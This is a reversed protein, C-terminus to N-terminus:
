NMHLMRFLSSSMRLKQNLRNLLRNFSQSLQRVEIPNKSVPLQKVEKEDTALMMDTLPQSITNAAKRILILAIFLSYDHCRCHSIDGKDNIKCCYKHKVM